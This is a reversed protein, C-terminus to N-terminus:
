TCSYVPADMGSVLSENM